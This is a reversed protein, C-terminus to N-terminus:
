PKTATAPVVSVPLGLPDLQARVKAADGVVVWSMKAPDIAARIATRAQDLTLAQYRAVQRVNYDDPRRYLDNSRMADLISKSTALEGPLSRVRGNVTLDLEAQTIPSKGVYDAFIARMTAITAGTKDSQVPAVSVFSAANAYPRFGSSVGYAWGKRERLDTNLRSTIGGGLAENAVDAATIDDYNTLRTYQGAFVMSQSSDPRDILVIQAPATQPAAAFDKRGAAGSGRWTGFSRELLPQIEALPREGVVFIKAKEPRFWADRFAILDARRLAKVAAADGSGVARVYPSAADVLRMSMKGGITRADTEEQAIQSLLNARQVEIRAPDLLPNRTMDAMLEIAPGVNGSPVSMTISTRDKSAGNKIDAGLRELADAFVPQSRTTTGQDLMALLLNQTGVAAAPEAAGGADLEVSVFTMPSGQRRAYILEIGNALRAHTVAPFALEPFAAVAPLPGRDGTVPAAVPAPPAAPAATEVMGEDYGVRPGPALTLAYVPRSLWKNAVQRVQQPTLAALRELRDKFFGPGKDLLAGDALAYNRGSISDLGSLGATVDLTVYRQLADASPGDRLFQALLAELRAGAVKPDVGPAVEGAATFMGGQDSLSASASVGTFLKERRVLVEPLLSSGLAGMVGAAAELAVGDPDNRGPVAWARIVTPASVRDTMVEDLRRPLTPVPAVPRRVAPGAPIDGFYKEMLRRATAVDVDGALTVVANNPGYHNRFWAKVDDLTAANLDAMSGITDHGYPHTAPYLRETLRYGVLAGPENDGQRKENKVVGRQEDLRAQQLAGLLHGMRDSEMFLVRELAPTPVTEYYTTKDPQTMGNNDTVGVTKLPTFFEGPANESGGFMLHEYLHAFGSRGAPEHKSGVDYSVNVAVLKASRDTHVVVRLGNKLTFTEFPVAVAEVLAAIPLPQVPTAPAASVQAPTAAPLCLALATGACAAFKLKMVFGSGPSIM